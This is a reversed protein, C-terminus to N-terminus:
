NKTRHCFDRGFRTRAVYRGPRFPLEFFSPGITTGMLILARPLAAARFVKQLHIVDM